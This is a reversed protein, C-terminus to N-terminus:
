PMLDAVAVVAGPAALPSATQGIALKTVTDYAFGFRRTADAVPDRMVVLQRNTLDVVWYDAISAAAYLSAKDDMDYDLSTDSVEIVLVATKPHNQAYDRISGTVVALDPIPDSNRGLPLSTEVRVHFSSRFISQLVERTLAQATAHPPNAHPMELIEGDILMVRRDHFVNKNCLDIFEDLSWRVLRPNRVALQPQMPKSPPPLVATSM